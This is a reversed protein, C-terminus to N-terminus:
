QLVHVGILTLSADLLTVKNALETQEVGTIAVIFKGQDIYSNVSLERWDGLLTYRGLETADQGNKVVLQANGNTKLYGLLAFENFGDNNLDGLEVVQTNLWNSPWSINAIRQNELKGDNIRLSLKGASDVGTIAVERIGDGTRDGVLMPKVDTLDNPWSFTRIVGRKDHGKKVVWQYRGDDKRQGFQGWDNTGDGDLDDMAILEINSWQPNWNYVDVKQTADAGNYIFLQGKDLRTNRGYLAVESVGDLTVDTMTVFRTHDWLDPWKYTQYNAKTAGNKVVLQRTGNGAHVGSIAYEQIGDQTLDELVQFQVDTLTAPWNWTGLSNGSVSDYVSLQYRSAAYNFGFLGVEAIGNANSDALVYLKVNDLDHAITYKALSHYQGGAFVETSVLGAKKYFGLSDEMGDNNIDGLSLIELVPKPADNPDLPDTGASVEDYDSVGDMDTDASNINTGKAIEQANSLGDGDNDALADSSDTPNLGVLVETGDSIGDFDSDSNYMDTGYDSEQYDNLGDFDADPLALWASYQSLDFLELTNIRPEIYLGSEDESIQGDGNMDEGWNSREYVLAKGQGDVSIIDWSRVRNRTPSIYSMVVQNGDIIYTWEQGVDIGTQGSSYDIYGYVGRRLTGNERFQYGFINEIKLQDGDWQEPIHANIGAFYIHPLQTVLNKSLQTYSNDFKALPAVYSTSVIDNEYVEYLALYAKEVLKFPTVVVKLDSSTLVLKENELAWQFVGPINTTEVSHDEILSVIDAFVGDATMNGRLPGFILNYKLSIAWKNYLDIDTMNSFLSGVNNQLTVISEQIDTFKPLPVTWDLAQPVVLTSESQVSVIVNLSNEIMSHKTFTRGKVKSQEELQFSHAIQGNDAAFIFKDAVAQGYRNAIEEFPYSVSLFSSSPSAQDVIKLQGDLVSWSMGVNIYNLSLGSSFLGSNDGNFRLVTGSHQMWGEKVNDLLVAVSNILESAEFMLASSGPKSASSIPDTGQAIEFGDTFGDGDSDQLLPNLGLTVEEGDNVGDNDTDPNNPSTGQEAEVYDNLGDNDTDPISNWLQTYQSLDFPLMSTLRPQILMRMESDSVSGDNNEDWGRYSYEFVLAKGQSDVSLVEWYRIRRYNSYEVSMVVENETITYSWQEGFQLIPNSQEDYGAGVGRWLSGDNFFKYGWVADFIPLEGDWNELSSLSIGPLWIHPLKTVINDTFNSYTNDVKGLQSNFVRTLKGDVFQKVNALYGKEVQLIPTIVFQSSGQTLHIAGNSFSWSFPKGSYTDAVTGNANLTLREAFLGSDQGGGQNDVTQYLEIVWQGSLTDVSAGDFLSNTDSYWNEEFDFPEVANVFAENWGWEAPVILESIDNGTGRVRARNGDVSLKELQAEFRVNEQYEVQYGLEGALYKANLHDAIQQGYTEAIQAFPAYDWEIEVRSTSALNLKGDAVNWSFQDMTYWQFEDLGAIGNGDQNFAFSGGSRPVFGKRSDAVLVYTSGALEAVSFDTANAVASSNALTPQAIDQTSSFSSFFQSKTRPRELQSDPALEVGSNLSKAFVPFASVVALACLTLQTYKM